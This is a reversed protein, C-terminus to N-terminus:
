WPQVADKRIVKGVDGDRMGKVVDKVFEGGIKPDLAGMKRMKEAGASALGTALFGPSIGWVKVGDEKLLRTWERMAMNLGTKASRYMTVPVEVKDKPWGKVAPSSNLRKLAPTDFLETEELSATGSTIFILRPDSSSLLLPVSHSTLVMTGAVNTDWTANWAERLSLKGSEHEWDFNAGANNVLCDLHGHTQTITDIASTISSDSSIDVQVTQITTSNHGPTSSPQLKSVAESGKEISRCGLLITTPQPSTYLAKVIEFGLGTNGGTILVIQPTPISSSM